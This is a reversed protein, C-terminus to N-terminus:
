GVEGEREKQRELCTRADMRGGFPCVMFKYDGEILRERRYEGVLLRDIEYGNLVQPALLDIHHNGDQQQVLRVRALYNPHFHM